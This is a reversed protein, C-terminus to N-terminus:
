CGLTPPGEVANRVRSQCHSHFAILSAQSMLSGSLYAVSQVSLIHTLVFCEM